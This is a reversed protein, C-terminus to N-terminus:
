FIPVAEQNDNTQSRRGLSTDEQSAKQAAEFPVALGYKVTVITQFSPDTAPFNELTRGDELSPLDVTVISRLMM